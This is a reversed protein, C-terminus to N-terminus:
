VVSKRDVWLTEGQVAGYLAALFADAQAPAHGTFLEEMQDLFLLLAPRGACKTTIHEIRRQLDAPNKVLEEGVAHPDLGAQEAHAHLARMLADFPHRGHRPVMRVCLCGRGGPLGSEELRPLVGADLFSSKGVGSDGSVLIFRTQGTYLRDLVERVDGERGFFVPAYRRSFHMLGPYPSGDRKLDWTVSPPLTAQERRQGGAEQIHKSVAAQVLSALQYPSSFESAMRERLLYQRLRDIREGPHEKHREAYADVFGPSWPTGEKLVFALCPLGVEDKAYRFELETISLGQWDDHRKTRECERIHEAPPIYGYRFAFVGVYIDAREGIDRLCEEVPRRDTAVYDEMAIVHHGSKRLADFVADRYEKLDEYTSSLYITTM